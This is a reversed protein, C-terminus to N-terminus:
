LLRRICMSVGGIIFLLFSAPEPAISSSLPKWILDSNGPTVSNFGSKISGFASVYTYFDPDDTVPSHVTLAAPGCSSVPEERSSRPGIVREADVLAVSDFATVLRADPWIVSPDAAAYADEKNIPLADIQFSEFRGSIGIWLLANHLTYRSHHNGIYLSCENEYSVATAEEFWDIAANGNVDRSTESIFDFDNEDHSIRIRNTYKISDLDYDEFSATKLAYAAHNFFLICLACCMLTKM